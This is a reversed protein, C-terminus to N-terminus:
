LREVVISSEDRRLRLAAADVLTYNSLDGFMVSFSGSAIEPMFDASIYNVGAVSAPQGVAGPEWLFGGSTSQQSRLTAVTTPSMVLVANRRYANNLKGTLEIVEGLAIEGSASSEFSTITGNEAATVIGNLNQFDDGKGLLVDSEEVSTLKRSAERTVFDMVPFQSFLVLDETILTSIGRRYVQVTIDKLNLESDSIAEREGVNEVSFDAPSVPIQLTKVQANIRNILGLIPASDLKEQHINSSIVEPVLFGGNAGIDTRMDKRNICLEQYAEKGEDSFASISHKSVIEQILIEAKKLDQKKQLDSQPGAAIAAEVHKMRMEIEKEKKLNSAIEAQLKQNKKEYDDLSKEIKELKAKGEASEAYNKLTLM